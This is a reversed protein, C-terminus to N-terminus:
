RVELYPYIRTALKKEFQEWTLEENDMVLFVKDRVTGVRIVCLRVKKHYLSDSVWNFDPSASLISGIEERIKSSLEQQANNIGSVKAQHIRERQTKAEEALTWAQKIISVSDLGEYSSTSYGIPLGLGRQAAEEYGM